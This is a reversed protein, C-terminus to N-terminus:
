YRILVRDQNQGYITPNQETGYIRRSWYPVGESNNNVYKYIEKWSLKKDGNADANKNHIAELFFYTFMSHSKQDLWTSVEGSKASTMIVSNPIEILPNDIKIVIPSINNYVDTGSFCADVIISISKSPLASLNEYFQNLPYGQLEVYNPDCEIPVFYGKQNKLSPAGHGSYYIFVDSIGPKITNYLKGEPNDKTGFFLEFDGKTADKLLFINGEMYGLTKILYKKIMLADNIAFDVSKIKHYNSNGIVVAFANPKKSRGNPINTNIDEGLFITSDKDFVIPDLNLRLDKMPDYALTGKKNYSYSKENVPNIFTVETLIYSRNYYDFNPDSISITHWYKEFEPADSIPVHLIIDGIEPIYIKFTENDADYNKNLEARAWDIYNNYAEEYYSIYKQMIKHAYDDRKEIRKVYESTKEYKSRKQWKNVDAQTKLEIIRKLSLCNRSNISLPTEITEKGIALQIPINEDFSINDFSFDKRIDITIIGDQDTRYQQAISNIKCKVFHNRFPVQSSREHIIAKERYEPYNFDPKLFLLPTFLIAGPLAALGTIDGATLSLITTAICVLGIIGTPWYVQKELTTGRFKKDVKIKDIKTSYIKIKLTPSFANSYQIIKATYETTFPRRTKELKKEEILRATSPITQACSNFLFLSFSFILIM